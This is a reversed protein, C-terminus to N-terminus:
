KLAPLYDEGKETTKGPILGPFLQKKQAAAASPREYMASGFKGGERKDGKRVRTGPTLLRTKQRLLAQKKEGSKKLSSTNGSSAGASEVM